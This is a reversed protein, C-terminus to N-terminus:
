WRTDGKPEAEPNMSASVVSGALGISSPTRGHVQRRPFVRTDDLAYLLNPRSRTLRWDCFMQCMSDAVDQLRKRRRTKQITNILWSQTHKGKVALKAM